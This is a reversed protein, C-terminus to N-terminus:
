HVGRSYIPRGTWTASNIVVQSPHAFYHSPRRAIAEPEAQCAIVVIASPTFFKHRAYRMASPHVAIRIGPLSNVQWTSTIGSVTPPIVGTAVRMMYVHVATTVVPDCM